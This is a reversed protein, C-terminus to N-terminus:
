YLSPPPLCNLSDKPLAVLDPRLPTITPSSPSILFHTHPPPPPICDVDFGKPLSPHHLFSHKDGSNLTNVSRSVQPYRQATTHTTHLRKPQPYRQTNRQDGGEGAKAVVCKLTTQKRFWEGWVGGCM